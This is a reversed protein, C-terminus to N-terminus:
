KEEDLQAKIMSDKLIIYIEDGDSLNTDEVIGFEQVFSYNKMLCFGNLKLNAYVKNKKKLQECITLKLKSMEVKKGIIITFSAKKPENIICKITIKKKNSKILNNNLTLKKNFSKELNPMLNNINNERNFYNFSMDFSNAKLRRGTFTNSISKNFYEKITGINKTKPNINITNPNSIQFYSKNNYKDKQNKSIEEQKQQIYESNYSLLEQEKVEKIKNYLIEGLSKPKNEEEEKKKIINDLNLSLLNNNPNNNNMNQINNNQSNQNQPITNFLSSNNSNQFLSNQQNNNNNFLPAANKNNNQPAGFLVPSNNNNQPAGFLVQPNNNFTNINNNINNNNPINDFLSKTNM